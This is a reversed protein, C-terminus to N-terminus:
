NSIRRRASRVVLQLWAELEDVDDATLDDPFVLVAKREGFPHQAESHGPPARWGGAPEAVAVPTASAARPAPGFQRIREVEFRLAEFPVGVADMLRRQVTPELIGKIRGIEYSGWGQNTLPPSHRSGAQEQTLGAAERIRRLAQGYLRVESRTEVDQSMGPAHRRVDRQAM